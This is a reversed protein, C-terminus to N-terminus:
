YHDFAMVYTADLRIFTTWGYEGADAYKEEHIRIPIFTALVALMEPVHTGESLPMSELDYDSGAACKHVTFQSVKDCSQYEPIFEAVVDVAGRAYSRTTKFRVHYPLVAFFAEVADEQAKLIHDETADYVEQYAQWFPPRTDYGKPPNPANTCPKSEPM